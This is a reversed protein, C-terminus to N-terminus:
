RPVPQAVVVANSLYEQGNWDSCTVLVLRGPGRRSFLRAADRALSLRGYVARTAVTYRVMGHETRVG